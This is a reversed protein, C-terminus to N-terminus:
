AAAAEREDIALARQLAPRAALRGHYAEIAGGKPFGGFMLGWHVGMGIMVDATTFHEGLLWPGAAVAQDLTAIVSDFDGWAHRMRDPAWGHLKESIAPEVCGAAFFLWQLYRGRAPDGMAPALGAQPFRDGLYAAIASGEAMQLAGDELAPVKGMPNVQRYAEGVDGRIDVRALEYPQGIEELLWLISIARTHPAYYLKM